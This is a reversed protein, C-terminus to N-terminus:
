AIGISDLLAVIATEVIESSSCDNEAAVERVRARLESPLRFSSPTNTRENRPLLTPYRRLQVKTM